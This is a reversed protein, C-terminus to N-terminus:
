YITKEKEWKKELEKMSTSRVFRYAMIAEKSVKKEYYVLGIGKAYIEMGEFLQGTVGENEMEIKEKVKFFIAPIERRNLTFITDGMFIRNKIVSYITSDSDNSNWQIHYLFIGFRDKVVFPFSNGAVIKVETRQQRYGNTTDPLDYIYLDKLLLGNQVVEEQVHQLPVMYNEYFTSSFIKEEGKLFSRHYWYVSDTGTNGASAYVYVEGSDLKEMPFYYGRIDRQNNESVCGFLTLCWLIYAPVGTYFWANFPHEWRKKNM